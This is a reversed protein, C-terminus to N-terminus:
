GAANVYLLRGFAGARILATVAEIDGALARDADLHDVKARILRHAEALRPSTTMPAHFDVGQAAAMLEIAIVRAANAAIDGAKRAAFTAM